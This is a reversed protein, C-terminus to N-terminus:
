VMEKYTYPIEGFPSAANGVATQSMAGESGGWGNPGSSNSHWYYTRALDLM